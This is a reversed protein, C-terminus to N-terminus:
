VAVSPVRFIFLIISSARLVPVHDYVLLILARMYNRRVGDWGCFGMIKSTGSNFPFILKLFESRQFPSTAVQRQGPSPRRLLICLKQQLIAQQFM